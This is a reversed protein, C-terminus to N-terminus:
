PEGAEAKSLVEYTYTIIKLSRESYPLQSSSLVIFYNSAIFIYFLIIGPNWFFTNDVRYINRSTVIRHSYRNWFMLCLTEITEIYPFTILSTSACIVNNYLSGDSCICSARLWDSTISHRPRLDRFRGFLQKSMSKKNQLAFLWYSVMPPFVLNATQISKLGHPKQCIDERNFFTNSSFM